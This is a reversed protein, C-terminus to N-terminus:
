FINAQLYQGLYCTDNGLFFEFSTSTDNCVQITIAQFYQHIYKYKIRNFKNSKSLNWIKSDVSNLDCSFQGVAFLFEQELFTDVGNGARLM